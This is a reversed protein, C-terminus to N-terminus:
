IDSINKLLKSAPYDKLKSSVTLHTIKGLTLACITFATNETSPSLFHISDVNNLSSESGMLSSFCVDVRRMFAQRLEEIGTMSVFHVLVASIAKVAKSHLLIEQMVGGDLSWPLIIPVFSNHPVSLGRDQPGEIAAPIVYLITDKKLASRLFPYMQKLLSVTFSKGVEKFITTNGKEITEDTKVDRIPQFIVKILAAFYYIFCMLEESMSLGRPKIPNFKITQEPISATINFIRPVINQLIAIGDAISHHTTLKFERIASYEGVIELNISKDLDPSGTGEWFINPGVESSYKYQKDKNISQLSSFGLRYASFVNFIREEAEKKSNFSAPEKLKLSSQIYPKPMTSWFLDINSLPIGKELLHQHNGRAVYLCHQEYMQDHTMQPFYDSPVSSIFVQNDTFKNIFNNVEKHFHYDKLGWPTYWPILKGLTSNFEEESYDFAQLDLKPSLRKLTKYIEYISLNWVSTPDACIQKVRLTNDKPTFLVEDTLSRAVIDVPITSMRLMPPIRWIRVKGRLILSTFGLHAMAEPTPHADLWNGPAGVCSLRLLSIKIRNAYSAAIHEGLFKTYTYDTLFVQRPLDKPLLEPKGITKAPHVYCTSVFIIRCTKEKTSWKLATQCLNEVGIVNDRYLNEYTDLTKVNAACHLIIDPGLSEGKPGEGWTIQDLHELDGEKISVKSLDSFHYLSNRKISDWRAEASNGKKGRLLCVIDSDSPIRELLDRLVFKGVFGTCGTLLIRM